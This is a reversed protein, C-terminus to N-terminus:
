AKEELQDVAVEVTDGGDLYTVMAKNDEKALKQIWVANSKYWVEINLPSRLIEEIRSSKM